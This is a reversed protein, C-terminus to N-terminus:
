GLLDKLTKWVDCRGAAAQAQRERLLGLIFTLSLAGLEGGVDGQGYGTPHVDLPMFRGPFGIWFAEM